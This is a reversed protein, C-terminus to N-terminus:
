FYMRQAFLCANGNASSEIVRANWSQRGVRRVLYGGCPKKSLRICFPALRIRTCRVETLRVRGHMHGPACRGRPNAKFYPWYRVLNGTKGFQRGDGRDRVEIGSPSLTSIKTLFTRWREYVRLINKTFNINKLFSFLNARKVLFHASFQLM